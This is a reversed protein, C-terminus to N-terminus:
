KEISLGIVITYAYLNSNVLNATSVTRLRVFSSSILSLMCHMADIAGLTLISNHISFFVSADYIVVLLFYEYSNLM